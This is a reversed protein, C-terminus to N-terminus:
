QKVKIKSTKNEWPFDDYPSDIGLFDMLRNYADKESLNIVILDDQRDKFYEMVNRNHEEYESMLIEKNYLDDEPVKSSAMKNEWMWGKWIYTANKLDEATPLKGKGFLKSQFKTASEYWQEASDRVSLIFKSGPFAEDVHKYTEAKSFPFDQFVQATKCYDIIPAFNGAVYERLLREATRQDGVIFGIDEFAKKLSTTGTKNRGICFIKRKGSVKIPNIITNKLFRFQKKLM